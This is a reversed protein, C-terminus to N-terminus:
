PKVAHVNLCTSTVFEFLNAKDFLYGPIGARTAAEIDWDKDGILFSREKVIPWDSLAHLIMGPKPKRCECPGTFDPHHPCFYFADVHAGIARLQQQMWDHLAYVHHEGYYGRAIGAQNTVVFVFYGADNLCRIADKAGPMWCFGSPLSVYSSDENIVGDRDLFVASRRQSDPVSTQAVDFDDPVGIDIFFGSYEHGQLLGESILRPFLDNELSSSGVPLKDICERSLFYIGGNILGEGSFGKEQMSNIYFGDIFVRGFRTTDPVRRLALRAMFNGTASTALDNLNIDFLTDGNLVLFYDALFDYASKLAGGTGLPEDEVLCRLRMRRQDIQSVFEQVADAQYGALLLIDDFGQRVLADIVYTLFHKNGVSLLPKPTSDTLSGLRTGRGGVLVVAQRTVEM